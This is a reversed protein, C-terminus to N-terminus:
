QPDAYVNQVFGAANTNPWDPHQAKLDASIQKGADEASVGQRKLALARDRIGSILKVEAAVLSGDGPASHDPLVHAVNLASVKELVALWSTPTGGDGYIYPITRNQVVDGSILTHDPEVFTLEDGKTHAGGFWLLRTTVGGLDITAQENFIIDPSRLIVGALLERNQASRQSFMDIMEQGHKEMEEQQVADRILITGPPFGPEGGAHEPHFHTTTLFLKKNNPALKAAVRAATAGNKPGLGTDVVLTARNGVVIAINPFGMIAWVHDSVKAADEGLMPQHTQAFAGTALLAVIVLCESHLKMKRRGCASKTYDSGFRSFDHAVNKWVGRM